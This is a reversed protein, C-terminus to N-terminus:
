SPTAYRFMRAPSGRSTKVTVSPMRSTNWPSMTAVDKQSVMLISNVLLNLSQEGISLYYNAQAQIDLPIKARKETLTRCIAHCEQLKSGNIIVCHEDEVM